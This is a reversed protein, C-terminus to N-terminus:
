DIAMIPKSKDIGFHPKNCSPCHKLENKNEIVAFPGQCHPCPYVTLVRGTKADWVEGLPEPKPMIKMNPPLPANPRTWRLYVFKKCARCYGTVQEFFMGGGFTVETEYGCSKATAGPPQKGAEAQCKVHYGMGAYVATAALGLMLAVIMTKRSM